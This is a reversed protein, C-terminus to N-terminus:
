KMEEFDVPSRTLVTARHINRQRVPLDLDGYGRLSADGYAQAALVHGQIVLARIENQSFLELLRFLEGDRDSVVSCGSAPPMRLYPGDIRRLNLKSSRCRDRCLGRTRIGDDGGYKELAAFLFRDGANLEAANRGVGTEGCESFSNLIGAKLFYYM